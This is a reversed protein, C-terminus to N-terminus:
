KPVNIAYLSNDTILRNPKLINRILGEFFPTIIFFSIVIFLMRFVATIFPILSMVIFSSGIGIWDRKGFGRIIPADVYVSPTSIPANSVQRRQERFIGGIRATGEFAGTLAPNLQVPQFQFYSFHLDQSFGFQAALLTLLLSLLLKKM